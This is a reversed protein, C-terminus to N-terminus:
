FECLDLNNRIVFSKVYKSVYSTDNNRRGVNEVGAELDLMRCKEAAGDHCEPHEKERENCQSVLM